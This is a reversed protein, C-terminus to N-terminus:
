LSLVVRSRVPTTCHFTSSATIAVMSPAPAEAPRTRLMATPLERMVAVSGVVPMTAAVESDIVGATSTPM